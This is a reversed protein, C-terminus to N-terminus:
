AGLRGDRLVLRRDARAAVSSDHTVIVITLGHDNRLGEFLSLVTEVSEGDLSGTPEDALLLHPENALARAIAM